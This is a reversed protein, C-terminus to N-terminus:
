QNERASEQTQVLAELAALWEDVALEAGRRVAGALMLQQLVAGAQADSGLNMAAAWRRALEYFRSTASVAAVDSRLPPPTTVLNPEPVRLEDALASIVAPPVNAAAAPKQEWQYVDSTQTDWGRDRLRAALDSVSLKTRQRATRVAPGSLARSPDPVLGLTIASRDQALPPPEFDGAHWAADLAALVTEARRRVEPKLTGLDPPASVEGSLYALYLVTADGVVDHDPGTM